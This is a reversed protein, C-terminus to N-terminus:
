KVKKIKPILMEATETNAQILKEYKETVDTVDSSLEAYRNRVNVTYNKQIDENKLASWNYKNQKAATKHKRLSLKFRATVLRHDSGMSSFSNYAETNHVSNKWKKNVLIYDIQSKAGNMDSLFTWQRSKKKKFLTNTIHLDSETAHELLLNGNSNTKEHFAYKFNDRGLHANFDGCEIIM